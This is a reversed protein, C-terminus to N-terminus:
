VLQLPGFDPGSLLSRPMTVSLQHSQTPWHDKIYVPTRYGPHHFAAEHRHGPPFKAGTHSCKLHNKERFKTSLRNDRWLRRVSLLNCGFDPHYVVNHLTIQHDRGKDDKLHTVVTGVAHARLVRKDAVRITVPQHDTYVSTLLSFDNM